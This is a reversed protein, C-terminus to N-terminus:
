INRQKKKSYSSFPFFFFSLVVFRQQKMVNKMEAVKTDSSAMLEEVALVFCHILLCACVFLVCGFCLGKEKQANEKELRENEGGLHRIQQRQRELEEKSDELEQKVDDLEIEM